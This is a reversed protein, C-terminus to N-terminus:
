CRHDISRQSRRNDSLSVECIKMRHDNPRGLCRIPRMLITKERLEWWRLCRTVDRM